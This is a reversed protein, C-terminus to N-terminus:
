SKYQLTIRRMEKSIELRPIEFTKQSKQSALFSGNVKILENILKEKLIINKFDFLDM